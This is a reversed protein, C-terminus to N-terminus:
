DSHTRLLHEFDSTWREVTRLSLARTKRLAKTLEKYFFIGPYKKLHVGFKIYSRQEQDTTSVILELNQMKPVVKFFSTYVYVFLSVVSVKQSSDIVKINATRFRNLFKRGGSSKKWVLLQNM